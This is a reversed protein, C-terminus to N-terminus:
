RAFDMVDGDFFLQKPVGKALDFVATEVNPKSLTLKTGNLKITTAPPGSLVFQGLYEKNRIVLM